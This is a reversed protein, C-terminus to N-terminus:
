AADVRLLDGPQLGWREFTGAEAELVARSRRVLRTMRNRRLRVTRLVRGGRDVFAVDLDFRMRFSHVSAGPEIWFGGDLGDRGLLGRSRERWTRAVEVPGLDEGGRLLRLQHTLSGNGM